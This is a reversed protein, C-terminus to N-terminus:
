DEDMDIALGCKESVKEIIALLWEINSFQHVRISHTEQTNVDFMNIYVEPSEDEDYSGSVSHIEYNESFVLEGKAFNIHSTLIKTTTIKGILEGLMLESINFRKKFSNTLLMAHVARETQHGHDLYSERIAVVIPNFKM